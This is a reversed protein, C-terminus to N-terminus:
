NREEKWMVFAIWICGVAVLLGHAIRLPQGALFQPLYLLFGLVLPIGSWKPLMRSKWIAAAALIAASALLLLGLVILIFGAGFRIDDALSLLSANHQKLAEQGIAYLGFVEVGYYPLTM